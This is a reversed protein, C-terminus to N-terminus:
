ADPERSKFRSLLASALCTVGSAVTALFSLGCAVGLWGRPVDDSTIAVLLFMCLLWVVLCISASIGARKSLREYKQAKSLNVNTM